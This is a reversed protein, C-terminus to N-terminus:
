VCVVESDEGKWVRIADINSDLENPQICKYLNHQATLLFKHHSSNDSSHINSNNPYPRNQGPNIQALYLGM